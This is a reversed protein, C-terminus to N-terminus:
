MYSTNVSADVNITMESNIQSVNQKMLIVHVNTHFLKTLTKLENIGTIMNLVSLSLDKTKNPVCVKNSLYSLTNSSKVCGYLKVALPYYYFEQNQENPHLNILSPQIM